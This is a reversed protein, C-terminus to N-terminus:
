RNFKTDVIEKLANMYEMLYEHFAQISITNSHKLYIKSSHWYFEQISNLTYKFTDNLAVGRADVDFCEKFAKTSKTLDMEKFQNYRLKFLEEFSEQAKQTNSPIAKELNNNFEMVQNQKLTELEEIM